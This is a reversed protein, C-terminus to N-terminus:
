CFHTAPSNGQPLHPRHTLSVVKGYGHATTMFDPFRLERFGEAGSWAQLPVAKNEKLIIYLLIIYIIVIDVQNFGHKKGQLCKPIGFIHMAEQHVKCMTWNNAQNLSKSDCCTAANMVSLLNTTNQSFKSGFVVNCKIKKIWRHWNSFSCFSQRWDQVGEHTLGTGKANSAPLYFTHM